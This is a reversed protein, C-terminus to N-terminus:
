LYHLIDIVNVLEKLLPKRENISEKALVTHRLKVDFLQRLDKMVPEIGRRTDGMFRDIVGHIRLYFETARKDDEIIFPLIQDDFFIKAEIEYEKPDPFTDECLIRKNILVEENEQNLVPDNFGMYFALRILGTYGMTSVRDLDRVMRVWLPSGQPLTDDVHHLIGYLVRVDPEVKDAILVSGLHHEEPKILGNKVLVYGKDHLELTRETLYFGVPDFEGFDWRVHSLNSLCEIIHGRRHPFDEGWALVKSIDSLEPSVRSVFDNPINESIFQEKSFSLTPFEAGM